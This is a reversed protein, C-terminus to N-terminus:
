VDLNVVTLANDMIFERRPEVDDGMLVTFLQDAMVADEIKVQLVTRTAPDMTTEWLQSPNMEGLGKYRQITQGKRALDMVKALTDELTNFAEIVEGSDKELRYPGGGLSLLDQALDRLRVFMPSEMLANDLVTRKSRGNSVTDAM